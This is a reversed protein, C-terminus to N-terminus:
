GNVAQSLLLSMKAYLDKSESAKLVVAIYPNGAKNRAFLILCHGAAATTGTKGGIVTFGAPPDANGLLYQNTSRITKETMDGGATKYQTTYESTHIIESILEYKIAESFILYQDYATSYHGNETLGNPNKFQTQTAGLAKAEKNMLRVFEDVSGAVQDAIMNAVDCHSSILLFHLAQDLTMSDGVSLGLKAAGTDSLAIADGAVLVQEPSGYKLAVLATMIKTLSAPEARDNVRHAYMTRCQAIDFLGCIATESLEPEDGIETNVVCLQSAFLPSLSDGAQMVSGSISYPEDVRGFSCGSASILVALCLLVAGSKFRSMGCHGFRGLFM